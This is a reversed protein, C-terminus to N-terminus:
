RSSPIGTVKMGMVWSSMASIPSSKVIAPLRRLQCRAPSKISAPIWSVRSLSLMGGTERYDRRRRLVSAEPVLGERSGGADLRLSEVAALHHGRAAGRRRAHERGAAGFGLHSLP